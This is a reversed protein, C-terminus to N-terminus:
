VEYLPEKKEKKCQLIDISKIILKEPNSLLVSSYLM